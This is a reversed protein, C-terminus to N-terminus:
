FCQLDGFISIFRRKDNQWRAGAGPHQLILSVTREFEALFSQALIADAQQLYFRAADGLDNAAEPHLWYRM